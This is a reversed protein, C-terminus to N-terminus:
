QCEAECCSSCFYKETGKVFNANEIPSTEDEYDAYRMTLQVKQNRKPNDTNEYHEDNQCTGIKEVPKNKPNFKCKNNKTM